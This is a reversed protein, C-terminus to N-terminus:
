LSRLAHRTGSPSRPSRSKQTGSASNERIRVGTKAQLGKTIKERDELRQFGRITRPQRGSGTKANRGTKELLQV